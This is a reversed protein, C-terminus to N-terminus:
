KNNVNYLKEYFIKCHLMTCPVKEINVGFKEFDACFRCINEYNRSEIEKKYKLESNILYNLRNDDEEKIISDDYQRLEEYKLSKLKSINEKKKSPDESKSYFDHITKHKSPNNNIKIDKSEVTGVPHSNLIVDRIDSKSMNQQKELFYLNTINTNPRRYKKFWAFVDVDMPEFIRALTPLIHKEIYYFNNIFLNKNDLYDEPSIVSDKLSKSNQPNSIVIYPEREKYRPLNNSDKLFKKWAVLASPPLNPGRYTGLRVEKAFILDKLVIKGTFLKDLCRYLYDKVLSLDKREFLIKLVKETIKSVAECTDRRVTEIGKAEFTKEDKKVQNLDEYKYGAYHKKSLLILPSYIKEFQLKMPEPNMKTIEAAIEKGINIAEEKTRGELLVFISDTDGYIVKANYKQSSNIYNMATQLTEKGISVISDAIESSPM